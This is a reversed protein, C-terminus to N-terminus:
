KFVREPDLHLEILLPDTRAAIADCAADLDADERVRRACAQAEMNM